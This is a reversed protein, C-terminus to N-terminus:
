KLIEPDLPTRSCGPAADTSAISVLSTEFGIDEDDDDERNEVLALVILLCCVVLGILGPITKNNHIAKFIM